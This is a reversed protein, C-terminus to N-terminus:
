GRGRRGADAHPLWTSHHRRDDAKPPGTAPACQRPSPEPRGRAEWRAPQPCEARCHIERVFRQPRSRGGSRRHRSRPRAPSHATTATRARSARADRRFATACRRSGSAIAAGNTAFGGAADLIAWSNAFRDCLDSTMRTRHGDRTRDTFHRRSRCVDPRPTSGPTPRKRRGDRRVAARPARRSDCIMPESVGARPVRADGSLCQVERTTIRTSGIDIASPRSLGRDSLGDGQLM